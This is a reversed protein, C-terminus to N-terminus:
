TTFGAALAGPLPLLPRYVVVSGLMEATRPEVFAATSAPLWLYRGGPTVWTVNLDWDSRHFPLRQEFPDLNGGPGPATSV